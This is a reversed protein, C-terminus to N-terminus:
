STLCMQVPKQNATLVDYKNTTCINAKGIVDSSPPQESESNVLSQQDSIQFKAHTDQLKNIERELKGVQKFQQKQSKDINELTEKLNLNEAKLDSVQSRFLTIEQKHRHEIDRMSEKLLQVEKTGFTNSQIGEKLVYFGSEINSIANRISSIKSQRTPNSFSNATM